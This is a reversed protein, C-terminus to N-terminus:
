SSSNMYLISIKILYHQEQQSILKNHLKKKDTVATTATISLIFTQHMKTSASFTILINLADKYYDNYNM